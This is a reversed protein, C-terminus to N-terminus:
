GTARTKGNGRRHTDFLAVGIALLSSFTLLGYPFDSKALIGCNIHMSTSQAAM